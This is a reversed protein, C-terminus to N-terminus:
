GSDRCGSISSSTYSARPKAVAKEGVRPDESAKALLELFFQFAVDGRLCVFRNLGLDVTLYCFVVLYKVDLHFTCLNFIEHMLM